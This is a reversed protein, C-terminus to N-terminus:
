GVNHELDPSYVQSVGIVNNSDMSSYMGETVLCKAKAMSVPSTGGCSTHDVSGYLLVCAM